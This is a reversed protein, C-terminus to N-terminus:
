NDLKALGTSTGIHKGERGEDISKYLDSVLDKNM